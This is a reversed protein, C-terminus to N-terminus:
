KDTQLMTLEASIKYLGGKFANGVYLRLTIGVRVSSHCPIYVPFRHEKLHGTGGVRRHVYSTRTLVNERRKTGCDVSVTGNGDTLSKTVHDSLQKLEGAHMTVRNQRTVRVTHCSLGGTEPVRQQRKASREDPTQTGQLVCDALTFLERSFDFAKNDCGFGNSLM